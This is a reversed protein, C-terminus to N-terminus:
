YPGSRQTMCGAGRQLIFREREPGTHCGPVWHLSGLVMGLPVLLLSMPWVFLWIVFWVSLFTTYQLFM